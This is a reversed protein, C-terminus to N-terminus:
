RETSPAAAGWRAEWTSTVARNIVHDPLRGSESRRINELLMRRGSPATELNHGISHPTLIVRDPDCALLPNDMEIPESEFVDLAAGRIRGEDIAAALAAEDVVGGRSTNVLIATPKMLAIRDADILSRTEATLSVHISVVDVTALLEELPMTGDVYPDFACTTVDWGALRQEVERAIRGYGVFGISKGALLNSRHSPRFGGERLSREKQKLNLLSAVTLMVTAEAMGTVNEPAPCNCVLVGASTAADQDITDVGIVPSTVMRLKPSATLEREGYAAGISAVIVDAEALAEPASPEGIVVRYGADALFDAVGFNNAPVAITTDTETTM